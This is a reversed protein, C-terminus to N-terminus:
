IIFYKGTRFFIPTSIPAIVHTIKPFCLLYILCTCVSVLSPFCALYIVLAFSVRTAWSTFFRRVRTFGHSNWKLTHCFGSCIFIFFFFFFRRAIPSVQTRNRSQSSGRSFPVAVWELLVKNCLLESRNLRTEPGPNFEDGRSALFGPTKHNLLLRELNGPSPFPKGVGTNQGPSNWPIYLWLSM